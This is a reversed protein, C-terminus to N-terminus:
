ELTAHVDDLSTHMGRSSKRRWVAVSLVVLGVVLAVLSANQAVSKLRMENSERADPEVVSYLREAQTQTTCPPSTTTTTTSTPEELCVCEGLKANRVQSAVNDKVDVKTSGFPNKADVKDRKVNLSDLTAKNPVEKKWSLRASNSVCRGTVDSIRQKTVNFTPIRFNGASCKFGICKWVPPADNAHVIAVVKTTVGDQTHEFTMRCKGEVTKDDCGQLMLALAATVCLPVFMMHSIRELHIIHDFLRAQLM